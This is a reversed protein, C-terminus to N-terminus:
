ALTPEASVTMQYHLQQKGDFHVVSCAICELIRHVATNVTYLQACSGYVICSLVAKRCEEM